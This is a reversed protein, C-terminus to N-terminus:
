WERGVEQAGPELRAADGGLDIRRSQNGGTLLCGIAEDVHQALPTCVEGTV